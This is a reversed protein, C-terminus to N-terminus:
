AAPVKHRLKVMRLDRESGNNDPPIRPDRTFRLYDAARDILRHALANRTPHLPARDRQDRHPRRAPLAPDARRAGGPHPRRQRRTEAARRPRRRGPRGLM